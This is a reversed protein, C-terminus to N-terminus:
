SIKSVPAVKWCRSPAGVLFGAQGTHAPVQRRAARQHQSRAGVESRIAMIYSFDPVTIGIFITVLYANGAHINRGM